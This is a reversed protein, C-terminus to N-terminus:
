SGAGGAGMSGTMGQSMGTAGAMGEGRMFCTSEDDLTQMGEPVQCASAYGCCAGTAPDRAM